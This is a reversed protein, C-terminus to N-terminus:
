SRESATEQTKSECCLQEFNERRYYFRLCLAAPIGIAFTGIIASATASHSRQHLGRTVVFAIYSAAIPFLRRLLVLHLILRWGFYLLFAIVFIQHRM